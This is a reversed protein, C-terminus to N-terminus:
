KLAKTKYNYAQTLQNLQNLELCPGNHLKSQETNQQNRLLTTAQKAEEKEKQQEMLM